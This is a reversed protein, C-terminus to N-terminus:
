WGSCRAKSYPFLSPLATAEKVGDFMVYHYKVWKPRADWPLPMPLSHLGLDSAASGPM